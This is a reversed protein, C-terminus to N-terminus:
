DVGLLRQWRRPVAIIMSHNAPTIADGTVFTRVKKQTVLAMLHNFYRKWRGGLPEIWVFRYGWRRLIDVDDMPNSFDSEHAEFLIIPQAATLTGEGGRLVAAEHGEVDLKVLSISAPDLGLDDLRKVSISVASSASDDIRSCGMNTPNEALGLEAVKDSLGFGHVVIGSYLSANIALIRSTLPHPEFAFVEKFYRRFYISHNGVNAGVDLAILGRFVEHLPRLFDFTAELETLEFFGYANIEHGIFDNAYVVIMGGRRQVLADSRRANTLAALKALADSVSAPQVNRYIRKV